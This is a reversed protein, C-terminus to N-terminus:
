FNHLGLVRLFFGAQTLSCGWFEAQAVQGISDTLIIELHVAELVTGPMYDLSLLEHTRSAKMGETHGWVSGM